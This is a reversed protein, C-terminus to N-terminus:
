LTQPPLRRHVICWRQNPIRRCDTCDSSPLRCKVSRHVDPSGPQRVSFEPRKRNLIDCRREKRQPPVRGIGLSACKVTLSGGLTGAPISLHVFDLDTGADLALRVVWTEGDDSLWGIGLVGDKVTIRIAIVCAQEEIGPLRIQAAAAFAWQDAGTTVLLHDRQREVKGDGVAQIESLPITIGNLALQKVPKGTELSIGTIIAVAASGGETANDIVLRGATSPEPVILEAEATAPTHPLVARALWASAAGDLWGLGM